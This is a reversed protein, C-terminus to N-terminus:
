KDSFVLPPQTGRHSLCPRKVPTNVTEYVQMGDKMPGVHRLGKSAEESGSLRHSLVVLRRMTSENVVLGSPAAPVGGGFSARQALKQNLRGVHAIQAELEDIRDITFKSGEVVRETLGHLREEIFRRLSPELVFIGSGLRKCSPDSKDCSFIVQEVKHRVCALVLREFALTIARAAFPELMGNEVRFGGSSVSWGTPVGLARPHASESAYKWSLTRIAASGAGDHPKSNAADVVNDNFVFITSSYKQQQIMCAFDGEMGKGRFPVGRVVLPTMRGVRFFARKKLFVLLRADFLLRTEPFSRWEGPDSASNPFLGRNAVPFRTTDGFFTANQCARDPIRKKWRIEFLIANKM